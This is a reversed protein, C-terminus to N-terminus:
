PLGPKWAEETCAYIALRCVIKGEYVRGVGEFAKEMDRWGRGEERRTKVTKGPKPSDSAAAGQTYRREEQQQYSNNQMESELTTKGTM